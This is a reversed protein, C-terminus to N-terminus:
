AVTRHFTSMKTIYTKLREVIQPTITYELKKSSIVRRKVEPSLLIEETM